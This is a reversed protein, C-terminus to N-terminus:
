NRLSVTKVSHPRALTVVVHDREDPWDKEGGTKDDGDKEDALRAPLTQLLQARSPRGTTARACSPPSQSTADSALPTARRAPPARHGCTPRGRARRPIGACRNCPSCARASRGTDGGAFLACPPTARHRRIAPSAAEADVGRNALARLERESSKAIGLTVVEPPQGPRIRHVHGAHYATKGIRASTVRTSIGATTTRGIQKGRQNCHQDQAEHQMQRRELPDPRDGRANRCIAGSTAVPCASRNM